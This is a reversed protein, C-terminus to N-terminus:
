AFPFLFDYGLSDELMNTTRILNFKSLILFSIQRRNWFPNQPMKGPSLPMFCQVLSTRTDSTRSVIPIVWETATNMNVRKMGSTVKLVGQFCWFVLLKRINEPTYVSVLPM